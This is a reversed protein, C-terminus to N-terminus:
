NIKDLLDKFEIHGAATLRNILIGAKNQASSSENGVVSSLISRVQDSYAIFMVPDRQGTFILSLCDVVPEPFESALKQLQNITQYEGEVQGTRQLVALLQKLAWDPEFKASAFWWGFASLEVPHSQAAQMRTEWLSRLRDLVESPIVDKENLLARGVFALAAQRLTDSAKEFYHVVIPDTITLKARWYLQMLHEALREQPSSMLRWKSPTESLHEIANAYEERLVDFVDNYAHCYVIYTQWAVERFDQLSEDIPFILSVKSTTWNKDLFLLRPFQRGYVARIALAPDHQIDLHYELVERVEPTTDFNQASVERRRVWAAYDVVAHIAEGRISNISLTFPDMNPPDYNSKEYETTPDPDDTIPKLLNWTIKRLDYPIECPGAGFGLSLLRAVTKRTWAWSANLDINDVQQKSDRPQDVAWRCLKLVPEWTFSQKEKVANCLGDLLADVYTADLGEFQQADNAFRNPESSVLSSLVRGLREASPALIKESPHWNKLYVVIEPVKLPRLEEMSKPSTPGVFVAPTHVPFEPHEAEGLERTLESYRSKWEEPLTGSIPGLRTLKWRKSYLQIEETSPPKTTRKEEAKKFSELDPGDDIWKLIKNQADTTLKGFQSQALISYEHRIELSDFRAHDTLREEILRDNGIRFVILLHLALRHFISWQRKELEEIIFKLKAPDGKVIQIAADRTSSVLLEKPDALHNHDSDEIAPRWAYSYDGSARGKTYLQIASELLDCLLHLAKEGAVTVLDPVQNM